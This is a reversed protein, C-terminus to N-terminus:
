IAEIFLANSAPIKEAKFWEQVVMELFGHFDDFVDPYIAPLWDRSPAWNPQAIFSCFPVRPASHSPFLM